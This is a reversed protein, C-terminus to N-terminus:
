YLVKEIVSIYGVIYLIFATSWRCQKGNYFNMIMLVGLSTWAIIAFM